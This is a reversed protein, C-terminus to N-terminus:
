IGRGEKTFVYPQCPPSTHLITASCDEEKFREPPDTCHDCKEGAACDGDSSVRTCNAMFFKDITYEQLKTETIPREHTKEPNGDYFEILSNMDELFENIHKEESVIGSLNNMHNWKEYFEKKTM